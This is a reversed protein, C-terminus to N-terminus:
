SSGLEVTMAVGELDVMVLVVLVLVEGDEGVRSPREDESAVGLPAPEGVWDFSVTRKPIGTGGGCLKDSPSVPKVL